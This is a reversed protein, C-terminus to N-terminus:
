ASRGEIHVGCPLNSRIYANGSGEKKQKRTYGETDTTILHAKGMMGAPDM